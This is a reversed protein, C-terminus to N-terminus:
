SPPAAKGPTIYGAKRGEFGARLLKKDRRDKKKDKKKQIRSSIHEQRKNQRTKQEDTQKAIRGQWAKQKKEKMKAEKKLSKRLLKPDDYVKEGAARALATGWAEKENVGGESDKAEAQELLKAKSPRKHRRRSADGFDLSSFTQKVELEPAAAPGEVKQQKQRPQGKPAKENGQSVELTRKKAKQRGTALAQERWAKAQEANGALEDAKRQQRMIELKKQLRERLEERSPPKGQTLVLTAVPAATGEAPQRSATAAPEGVVVPTTPAPGAENGRGSARQEAAAAAAVERQLDLTSKAQDPDLQAKKNEKYQAKFAAKAEDRVSKKVYKLNVRGADTHLYFKPPVMEVLRAFFAAHDEISM